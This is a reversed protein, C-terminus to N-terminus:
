RGGILRNVLGAVVRRQRVIKVPGTMELFQAAQCNAKIPMTLGHKVQLLTQNGFSGRGWHCFFWNVNFVSVTERLVAVQRGFFLVWRVSFVSITERLIVAQRGFFLFFKVISFTKAAKSRGLTGTEAM